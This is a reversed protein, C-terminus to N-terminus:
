HTMSHIQMISKKYVEETILSRNRLKNLAGIQMILNIYKKELLNRNDINIKCNM